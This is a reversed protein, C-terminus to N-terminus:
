GGGLIEFAKTRKMIASQFCAMLKWRLKDRKIIDMSSNRNDGRSKAASGSSVSVLKAKFASLSFHVECKTKTQRKHQLLVLRAVGQRAGVHLLGRGPRGPGGYVDGVVPAVVLLAEAVCALCAHGVRAQQLHAPLPDLHAVAGAVAGGAAGSVTLRLSLLLQPTPHGGDM